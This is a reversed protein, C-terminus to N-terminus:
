NIRMKLEQIFFFSLGGFAGGLGTIILDLKDRDGLIYPDILEKFLGILTSIFVAMLFAIWFLKTKKFTIHAIFASILFGGIFHELYGNETVQLLSKIDQIIELM